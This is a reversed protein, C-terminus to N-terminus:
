KWREETVNMSIHRQYQALIFRQAYSEYEVGLKPMRLSADHMPNATSVSLYDYQMAVKLAIEVVPSRRSHDGHRSNFWQRSRSHM